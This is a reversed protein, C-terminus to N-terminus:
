APDAARSSGGPTEPPEPEGGEVPASPNVALWCAAGVALLGACVAFAPDWQARGTFGQGKRWDTFAGFFFQSAMAGFTGMGNMLGFLAGVHRGSVESACSWWTSLTCATALCSLAALAATARPSDCLVGAWLAWAAAVYAVGGLWRRARARDSSSSTRAHVDSGVPAAITSV